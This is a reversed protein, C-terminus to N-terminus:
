RLFGLKYVQPALKDTLAIYAEEFPEFNFPHSMEGTEALEKIAHRIQYWGVDARNLKLKERIPHPFSTKFYAQWIIKGAELVSIAEPSYSKDKM